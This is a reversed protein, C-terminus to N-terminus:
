SRWWCRFSGLFAGHASMGLVRVEVDKGEQGIGWEEEAEKRWERGEEALGEMEKVRELGLLEVTDFYGTEEAGGPKPAKGKGGKRRGKKEKNNQKQKQKGAVVPTVVLAPAVVEAVAPPLAEPTPLDLDLKVRKAVLQPSTASPVSPPPPSASHSRKPAIIPTSTSMALYLPPRPRLFRSLMCPPFFLEKSKKRLELRHSLRQLKSHM